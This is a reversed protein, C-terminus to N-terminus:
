AEKAPPLDTPAPEPSPQPFPSLVRWGAEIVDDKTMEIGEYGLYTIRTPLTAMNAQILALVDNQVDSIGGYSLIFPHGHLYFIEFSPMMNQWYAGFVLRLYHHSGDNNFLAKQGPCIADSM